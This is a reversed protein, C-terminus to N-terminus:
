WKKDVMLYDSILDKVKRINTNHNKRVSVFRNDIASCIDSISVDDNLSYNESKYKTYFENLVKMIVSLNHGIDHELEELLKKIKKPMFPNDIFQKLERLCSFYQITYFVQNIKDKNIDTEKIEYKHPAEDMESELVSDSNNNSQKLIKTSQVFLESDLLAGAFQKDIDNLITKDRFEFGNNAMIKIINFKIINSYDLKISFLIDSDFFDSLSVLLDTQRKIVESRLPQLLTFRARRYTLIAVFTAIFTFVIWLIDKIDTLNTTVWDWASVIWDWM